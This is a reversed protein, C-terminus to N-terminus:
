EYVISGRIIGVFADIELNFNVTQYIRTKVKKGNYIGPIWKTSNEKFAEIVAQGCKGGIDQMVAFDSTTGDENVIFTVIVEGM